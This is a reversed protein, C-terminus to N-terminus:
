DPLPIAILYWCEGGHVFGNDHLYAVALALQAAIARAAPLMMPAYCVNHKAQIVSCGTVETVLCMHTGHPGTVHFTDLLTHIIARRLVSNAGDGNSAPLDRLLSMIESERPSMDAVCVKVAVLRQLRGDRALWVTSYGGHGLKKLVQYHGGLRDGIVVPHYGGPVYGYFSEADDYAHFRVRSDSDSAEPM